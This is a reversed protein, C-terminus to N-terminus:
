AVVAMCGDYWTVDVHSVTLPCVWSIVPHRDTWAGAISVVPLFRLFIARCLELCPPLAPLYCSLARFLTCHVARYNLRFHCLIHACLTCLTRFLPQVTSHTLSVHHLTRVPSQTQLPTSSAHTTAGHAQYVACRVCRVACRVGCVACRVGCVACRM